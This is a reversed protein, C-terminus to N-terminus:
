HQTGHLSNGAATGCGCSEPPNNLTSQYMQYIKQQAALESTSLDNNNDLIYIIDLITGHSNPLFAKWSQTLPM